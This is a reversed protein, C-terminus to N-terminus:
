RIRVVDGVRVQGDEDHAMVRSRHRVYKHYKPHRVQRVMEVVVSQQRSPRIACGVQTRGNSTTTKATM